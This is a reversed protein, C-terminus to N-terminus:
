DLILNQRHKVDQMSLPTVLRVAEIERVRDLLMKIEGSLYFEGKVLWLCDFQKLEPLLFEARYHNNFLYHTVTKMIEEYRFVNFFLTKSAKKLRIELDAELRFDFRLAHNIQWCLQYDKAASVLGILSSDDLFQDTVFDNNLRFNVTAM